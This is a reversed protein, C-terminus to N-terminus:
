DDWNTIPIPETFAWIHDGNAWSGPASPSLNFQVINSGSISWVKGFVTNTDLYGLQGMYGSSGVLGSWTGLWQANFNFSQGMRATDFTLGTPLDFNFNSSPAGTLDSTYKIVISDGIRKWFCSNTGSAAWTGACTYSTWVSPIYRTEIQWNTGDSVITMSEGQTNLKGLSGIDVDNFTADIKIFKFRAGANTSASPLTFDFAGGVADALLVFDTALVTYNATKTSAEDFFDGGTFGGGGGGSWAAWDLTGSGDTSLCEGSDGDDPPLTLTYNGGLAAPAKLEAYNSGNVDAESFLISTENDMTIDGTMTGATTPLGGGGGGCTAWSLTGSGNTSLCEGSGGDGDPLTLTTSATVTGPARLGMYQGGATDQLRLENQAAINVTSTFTAGALDAKDADLEDLAAEVDGASLTGSYIIL